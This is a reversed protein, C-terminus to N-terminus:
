QLREMFNNLNIGKGFKAEIFTNLNQLEHYELAFQKQLEKQIDQIKVKRGSFDLTKTVNSNSKVNQIEKRLAVINDHIPKIRNKNYIKILEYVQNQQPNKQVQKLKNLYERTKYVYNSTQNYSTINRSGILQASKTFRDFLNSSIDSITSNNRSGVLGEESSSLIASGFVGFLSNITNSTEQNFIGNQYATESMDNNIINRSLDSVFPQDNFVNLDINKGSVNAILDLAPISDVGLSRAVSQMMLKSSNYAPDIENYASMGFIADLYSNLISDFVAVEQDKPIILHNGKGFINTLITKSAKDYDSLRYYSDRNESSGNNWIYAILTPIFSTYFLGQIFKNNILEKAYLKTMRLIDIYRTKNDGLMMCLNYFNEAGKSIGSARLKPAISKIMINGYTVYNSIASAVGGTLGRGSGEKGLNSTYEGVVDIVKKMAKEDVIKGDKIAGSLKGFYETLSLQPAERMAILYYNLMKTIQIAGDIGHHKVLYKKIRDDLEGNNNLTFFKGSNKTYPKQSAGGIDRIQTLLNSKIDNRLKEINKDSLYKGMPTNMLGNTKIFERDFLRTMLNAQETTVLDKFAVGINKMYEIRSAPKLLDLRSAITPFMTIAEHISMISSPVAFTPNLVGTMTSQVINKSGKLVEAFKNPLTPNLNFAAAIIPDTKYYHIIGNEVYSIVDNAYNAMGEYKDLTGPGIEMSKVLGHLPNKSNYNLNLLNFLSDPIIALHPSTEINKSGIHRVYFEKKLQNYYNKIKEDYEKKLNEKIKADSTRAINIRTENIYEDAERLLQKVNILQNDNINKIIDRKQQNQIINLLSNKYNQEFVDLYSKSEGFTIPNDGRINTNPITKPDYPVDELIYKKFQDWYGQNVEKIRPKYTFLDDVTRNNKLMRYQNESLIGSKYQKELLGKGIESIDKLLKNLEPNQKITNILTQREKLRQALEKANFYNNDPVDDVKNLIRQIYENTSYFTKGNNNYYNYRFADDQIKNDIELLTEFASYEDNRNIKLSDLRDYVSQPTVNLTIGDGLNGTIFSSNVRNITDQSLENAIEENLLGEEVLKNKFGFRDAVTTNLKEADSLKNSLNNITNPNSLSAEMEKLNLDKWKRYIKSGGFIAAAIGAAYLLTNSDEKNREKIYDLQNQNYIIQNNPDSINKRYDKILTNYQIDKQENIDKAMENQIINGGTILGGQIAIPLKQQMLPIDKRIQVGPLMWDAFGKKYDKTTKAHILGRYGDDVYTSALKSYNKSNKYNKAIKAFKDVKTIGIPALLDGALRGAKEYDNLDEYDKRGLAKAIPDLYESNIHHGLNGNIFADELSDRWSYNDDFIAKTTTFPLEVLGQGLQLTEGPLTAVNYALEGAASTTTDLLNGDDNKMLRHSTLNNEANQDNVNHVFLVKGM